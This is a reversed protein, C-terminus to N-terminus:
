VFVFVFVFNFVIVIVIVLVIFFAAPPPVLQEGQRYTLILGFVEKTVLKTMDIGIMDGFLSFPLVTKDFSSCSFHFSVSDDSTGVQRQIKDKALVKSRWM